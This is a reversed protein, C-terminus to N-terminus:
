NENSNSTSGYRPLLAAEIATVLFCQGKEKNLYSTCGKCGEEKLVLKNNNGKLLGFTVMDLLPKRIDVILLTELVPHLVVQGFQLILIVTGLESPISFSPSITVTGLVLIFPVWVVISSFVLTCFMRYLRRQKQYRPTKVRKKFISWKSQGESKDTSDKYSYVEKINKLVIYSFWGNSVIIVSLVLVGIVALITPFWISSDSFRVSCIFLSPNFYLKGAAFRTCLGLAISVLVAVLVSVLAIYKTGSREYQFPKYIYFFRDLSMLAVTFFSSYFPILLAFGLHCMVCRVRDFSGIIFEGAFGTTMLIPSPYALVFLDAALLNLLLIITPQHYLKEKFITIVVLINWPLGLLEFILLFVALVQGRVFDYDKLKWYEVTVSNSSAPCCIDSLNNMELWSPPSESEKSYELRKIGM